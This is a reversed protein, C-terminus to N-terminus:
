GFSKKSTKEKWPSIGKGGRRDGVKTNQWALCKRRVTAQAHMGARAASLLADM